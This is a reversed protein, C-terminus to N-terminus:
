KRLLDPHLKELYQVAHSVKSGISLKIYKMDANKFNKSNKSKQFACHLNLIRTCFIYSLEEDGEELYKEANAFCKDIGDILRDFGFHVFM